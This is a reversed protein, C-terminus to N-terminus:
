GRSVWFYLPACVEIKSSIDADQAAVTNRANLIPGENIDAAIVKRAKGSKVQLFFNFWQM